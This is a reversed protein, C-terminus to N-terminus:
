KRLGLIGVLTSYLVHGTFLYNPINGVWSVDQQPVSIKRATENGYMLGIALWNGRSKAFWSYYGLGTKMGSAVERIGNLGEGVANGMSVATAVKAARSGMPRARVTSEREIEGISKVVVQKRQQPAVMM